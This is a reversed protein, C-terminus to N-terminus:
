SYLREDWGGHPSDLVLPTISWFYGEWIYDWWMDNKPSALWAKASEVFRKMNAEGEETYDYKESTSLKCYFYDYAEKKTSFVGLADPHRGNGSLDQEIAIWLIM